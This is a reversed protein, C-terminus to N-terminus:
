KTKIMSCVFDEILIDSFLFETKTSLLVNNKCHELRGSDRGAQEVEGLSPPAARASPATQSYKGAWHRM